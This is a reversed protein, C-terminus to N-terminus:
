EERSTFRTGVEKGEVIDYILHPYAGNAIVMDIGRDMCIQAAKIKTAMGGTGRSSGAGGGLMIISEDIKKVKSILKVERGNRPNETYLGDVDSLLILLDAKVSRAVIASLTDNDGVAIEATSITDNENIIPLVKMELLRALTDTINGHSHKSFLDDATLLVQAVTHGFEGFFKDYTYMLDCQGVAAAAQKVSMNEPRKDIGLKALGMAVAGSSVLIVEHEANKLDSLVRCLKEFQRLDIRGSAHTLTSSGVKIVLRM